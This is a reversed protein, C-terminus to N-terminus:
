CKPPIGMLGLILDMIKLVSHSCTMESIETGRRGRRPWGSHRGMTGVFKLMERREAQGDMCM